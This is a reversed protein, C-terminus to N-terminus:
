RYVERPPIVAPDRTAGALDRANSVEGIPEHGVTSAEGTSDPSQARQSDSRHRHM